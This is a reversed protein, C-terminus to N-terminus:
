AAFRQQYRHSQGRPAQWPKQRGVFADTEDPSRTLALIMLDAPLKEPLDKASHVAVDILGDLVAQDLVDTWLNDKKNQMLSTKKDLDGASQFTEHTVSIDRCAEAIMARLEDVQIVALRSARSGIHLKQIPM